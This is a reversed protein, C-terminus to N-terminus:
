KQESTTRAALQELERAIAENQGLRGTKRLAAIHAKALATQGSAILLKAVSVQYQAVSPALRAAERWLAMALAPDQLVNLAYNGQISLVEAYRHRKLAAQFAQMMEHRPLECLEQVQCNVLTSLAGTEQPGIPRSGLKSRLQAWWHAPVPRGIRTALVIATSEPLATAGPVDMAHELAAFAPGVYESDPRYDTLIVLNRAIDYTARPSLPHKGAETSSFRLPDQWERARLATLGAYLALLALAM